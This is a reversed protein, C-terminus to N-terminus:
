DGKVKCSGALHGLLHAHGVGSSHHVGHLRAL